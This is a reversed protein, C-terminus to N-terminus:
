EFSLTGQTKPLAFMWCHVKKGYPGDKMRGTKVLKGATTLNTIARRVSTIPVSNDFVKQCVEHPAFAIGSYKRFLSLIKDEQINAKVRSKKLTSGAEENTNYYTM